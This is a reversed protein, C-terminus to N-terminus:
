PGLDASDVFQVATQSVEANQFRAFHIDQRVAREIIGIVKQLFEVVRNTRDMRAERQSFLFLRFADQTRHIVAVEINETMSRPPQQQVTM